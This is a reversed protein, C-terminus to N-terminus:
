LLLGPKGREITELNKSPACTYRERHTDSEGDRAFKHFCQLHHNQEKKRHFIKRRREQSKTCFSKREKKKKPSLFGIFILRDDFEGAGVVVDVRTSPSTSTSSLNKKNRLIKHLSSSSSQKSTPFLKPPNCM